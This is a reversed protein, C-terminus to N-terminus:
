NGIVGRELEHSPMHGPPGLPRRSRWRSTLKGSRRRFDMMDIHVRRFHYDLGLRDVDGLVQDGDLAGGIMQHILGLERRVQGPTSPGVQLLLDGRQSLSVDRVWSIQRQKPISHFGRELGQAGM